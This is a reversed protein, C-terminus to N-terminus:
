APLRCHIRTGEGPASDVTLDAGLLEARHRMSRLGLGEESIEELDFGIGDDEVTLAVTDDARELHIVIETAEAYKRANNVAEQAIRYLHTAVEANLQFTEDSTEEETPLSRSSFRADETNEALAELASLLDGEPLGAPSLGRSLRRVEGAGEEILRQIESIADTAETSSKNSLLGLKINAATLQSALSDHLDQGLRRREKEQIRLMEQQLRRQETVDQITGIVAPEGQYTIRTGSAEIYRTEGSKTRIRAEYRVEEAEGAIRKEIQKQVHPWDSPHVVQRLPEGLLEGRSYGTIELLAPNVYRYRGDQILAIGVLANEALLRFTEESERLAQEAQKRETVDRIIASFFREEGTKWSSLSLELPFEEGSKRLGELEMTKGLLPGTGTRRVREMGARHPEVHREPMLIELPRGVIEDKEYGFIEAAGRNWDTIRGENNAIVIGDNTSEKLSQYQEVSSTLRVRAKEREVVRGIQQGVSEMIDLLEPDPTISDESFFELVAAIEENAPVPFAVGGRLGAEDAAEARLFRPDRSTDEIWASEGRAFVTGTLGDGPAFSIQETAERFAEFRDRREENWIATPILRLPPDESSTEKSSPEEPIFAHGVQWGTHICVAELASHLAETLTEAENCAGTVEQVLRLLRNKKQAEEKDASGIARLRKTPSQPRVSSFILTQGNQKYSTGTFTSPVLRGEKTQVHAEFRVHGEELVRQVQQKVQDVEQPPMLDIPSMSALDEGTYGTKREFDQNWRLIEGESTFVFFPDQIAEM